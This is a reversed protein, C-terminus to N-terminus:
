SRPRSELLQSGHCALHQQLPLGHRPLDHAAHHRLGVLLDGAGSLEVEAARERLVRRGEAALWTLLSALPAHWSLLTVSAM